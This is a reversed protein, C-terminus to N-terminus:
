SLVPSGCSDCNGTAIVLRESLGQLVRGCHPCRPAVARQHRQWLWAIVGVVGLYFLFIIGELAVATRRALHEDAWAIFVLQGLGLGVSAVVLYGLDRRQLKAALERKREFEERTYTRAPNPPPSTM